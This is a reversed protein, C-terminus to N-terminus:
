GIPRCYGEYYFDVIIGQEDVVWYHICSPDIDKAHYKYIKKGDKRQWTEDPAGWLEMIKGIPAGLWSRGLDDLSTFYACGAVWIVVVVIWARM